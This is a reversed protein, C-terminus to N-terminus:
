FLIITFYQGRLDSATKVEEVSYVWKSVAEVAAFGFRTESANYIKVNRPILLEGESGPKIVLIFTVAACGPMQPPPLEKQFRSSKPRMEPYSASVKVKPNDARVANIRDINGCVAEKAVGELSVLFLLFVVFYKM